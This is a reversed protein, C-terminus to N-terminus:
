FMGPDPLAQQLAEFGAIEHLGLRSDLLMGNQFVFGYIVNGDAMEFYYHLYNDTTGSEPKKGLVNIKILAEFVARITGSDMVTVPIGSAEGDHRVSVSVPFDKEFNETFARIVPDNLFVILPVGEDIATLIYPIGNERADHEAYSGKVVHQTLKQCEQFTDEGFSTLSNPITVCALNSCQCFAHSEIRIVSNPIAVSKIHCCDCFTDEGIGTVPYGDLEAPTILFGESEETYGTIIAGGNVPVYMRRGGADAREKEAIGVAMFFTLVFLLLGPPKVLPLKRRMM